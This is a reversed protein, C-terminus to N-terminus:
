VLIQDRWVNKKKKKYQVVFRTQNMTYTVIPIVTKRNQIVACESCITFLIRCREDVFENAHQRLIYDERTDIKDKHGDYQLKMLM